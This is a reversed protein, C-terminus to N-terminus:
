RKGDILVAGAPAALLSGVTPGTGGAITGLWGPPQRRVAEYVAFFRWWTEDNMIAIRSRCGLSDTMTETWVEGDRPGPITWPPLYPSRDGLVAVALLRERFTQGRCQDDQVFIPLCGPPSSVPRRSPPWNWTM